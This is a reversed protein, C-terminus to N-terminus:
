EHFGWRLYQLFEAVGQYYPGFRQLISCVCQLYKSLVGINQFCQLFVGFFGSVLFWFCWFCWFFVMCFGNLCCFFFTGTGKMRWFRGAPSRSTAGKARAFRRPAEAHPHTTPKQVDWSLTKTEKTKKTNKTKPKLKKKTQTKTKKQNKTGLFSTTKQNKTKSLKKTKLILPKLKFHQSKPSKSYWFFVKPPGWHTKFDDFCGKTSLFVLFNPLCFVM